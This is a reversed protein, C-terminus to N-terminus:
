PYKSWLSRSLVVAAVTGPPSVHSFLPDFNYYRTPPNYYTGPTQWLQTFTTSPFLQVMSGWYTCAKNSWTELFRPYNVAGGSFNGTNTGMWGGLMATNFTTNSAVRSNIGNSTNSNADTWANSLLMIADGIVASPVKVYDTTATTGDPNLNKGTPSSSATVTAGSSAPSKGTNYDGQIYVPNQSAVTLGNTVVLPNVPSPISTTSPLVAGNKLRVTNPAPSATPYTSTDYVYFVGNFAGSMNEGIFTNLKGVDVNVVNVAKGVRADYLQNAGATTTYVQKSLFNVADALAANYAAGATTPLTAGQQAAILNTAGSVPNLAHTTANVTTIATNATTISSAGGIQVILGANNYLRRQSIETPDATASSPPEILEHYGTMLNPDTSAGSANNTGYPPPFDAELSPGMPQMVPSLTPAGANFTPVTLSSTLSSTVYNSGGPPAAGSTYAGSYTVQGNFTLYNAQALLYLNKNTHVLGNVTTVAPNYIELNDNFFYMTQFLPVESYQFLRRAGARFAPPNTGSSAPVMVATAAYTYTRGWWGPFGPVRGIVPDPITGSSLPVGYKDLATIALSGTVTVGNASYYTEPSYVFEATGSNYILGNSGSFSPGVLGDNAQAPTIQTHANNTKKVWIAFAMDVAGEAATQAALYARNRDTNRAVTATSDMVYALGMVLVTMVVLTVLIVNGQPSFRKKQM